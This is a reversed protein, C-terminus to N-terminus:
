AEVIIKVQSTDIGLEEAIQERHDELVQGFTRRPAPQEKARRRQADREAIRAASADDGRRMTRATEFPVEPMTEWEGIQVQDLVDQENMYTVPNRYGPWHFTDNTEAFEDFQILWRGDDDQQLDRITAILFSRGHREPDGPRRRDHANHVLLVNSANRAKVPDIKWWATGGIAIVDNRQKSTFIVLTNSM